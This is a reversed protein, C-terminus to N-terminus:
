GNRLVLGACCELVAEMMKLCGGSRLIFWFVVQVFSINKYPNAFEIAQIEMPQGLLKHLPTLQRRM